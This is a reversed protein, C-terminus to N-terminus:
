LSFLFQLRNSFMLLNSSPSSSIEKLKVDHPTTTTHHPLHNPIKCTHASAGMQEPLSAVSVQLTRTCWKHVFVDKKLPDDGKRSLNYKWGDENSFSSTAEVSHQPKKLAMYKLPYTIHKAMDFSICKTGAHLRCSVTRLLCTLPLYIKWIFGVFIIM